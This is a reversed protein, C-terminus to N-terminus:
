SELGMNAGQRVLYNVVPYNGNMCAVMLPSWYNQDQVDIDAGKEVIIKVM